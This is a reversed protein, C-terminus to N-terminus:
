RSQENVVCWYLGSRVLCLVNVCVCWAPHCPPSVGRASHIGYRSIQLTGTTKASPATFPERTGVGRPDASERSPSLPSPPRPRLPADPSPVSPSSPSLAKHLVEALYSTAPRALTLRTDPVLPARPDVCPPAPQLRAHLLEALGQPASAAAGFAHLLLCALLHANREPFERAEAATRLPSTGQTRCVHEWMDWARIDMSLTNANIGFFVTEDISEAVSMANTLETRIAMGPDGGEALALARLRAYETSAIALGSSPALTWPPAPPLRLVEPSIMYRVKSDRVHTM